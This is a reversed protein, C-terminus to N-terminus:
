LRNHFIACARNEPLLPLFRAATQSRFLQAVGNQNRTSSQTAQLCLVVRFITAKYPKLTALDSCNM